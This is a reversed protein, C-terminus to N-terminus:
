EYQEEVIRTKFEDEYEEDMEEVGMDGTDVFKDLFEEYNLHQLDESYLCM